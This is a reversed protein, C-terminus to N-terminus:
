RVLDKFLHAALGNPQELVETPIGACANWAAVLRRLDHSTAEHMLRAVAFADSDDTVIIDENVRLAASELSVPKM